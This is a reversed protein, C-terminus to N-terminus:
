YKPLATFNIINQYNGPQQQNSINVKFTITGQRDVSPKTSSMIIAAAESETQSPFPQFYTDQKFTAPVDDGRINYGFGYSSNSVWVGANNLSCSNNDCTTEPIYGSDNNELPTDEIATVSYGGVSNTVTLLASDIVPTQPLIKGFPIATKSISFIFPATSYIYQFGARVIYGNSNYQSSGFQGVTDTLNYNQSSKEGSTVNINGYDISYNPSDMGNQAFVEPLRFPNLIFPLTLILIRIQM